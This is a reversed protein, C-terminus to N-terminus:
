VLDKAVDTFDQYGGTNVTIGRNPTRNAQNRASINKFSPTDWYALLEIWDEVKM